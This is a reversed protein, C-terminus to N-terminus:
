GDVVRFPPRGGHQGGPSPQPRAESRALEQWQTLADSESKAATRFRVGRFEGRARWTKKGTRMVLVACEEGEVTVPVIQYADDDDM